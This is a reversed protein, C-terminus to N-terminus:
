RVPEMQCAAQLLSSAWDFVTHTQVRQRMARMRRRQDEAPMLLARHLADAFSDVAYPNIHV